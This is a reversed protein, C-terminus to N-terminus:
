GESVLPADLWQVVRTELIQVDQRRHVGTREFWSGERWGRDKTGVTRVVFGMAHLRPVVLRRIGSSFRLTASTKARANKM